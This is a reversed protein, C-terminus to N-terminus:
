PTEKVRGAQTTPVMGEESPPPPPILGDDTQQPQGTRVARVPQTTARPRPDRVTVPTREAAPAGAPAEPRVDGLLGLAQRARDAWTSDGYQRIVQQYYYAASRPRGTRKYFDGNLFMKRARLDGIDKMAKAVGEKAAAAPYRQAFAKYRQEAELLPTDDYQVGVFQARTARCAQLMAYQADPDNKHLEVYLDYAAVSAAWESKAYHHDGIRM